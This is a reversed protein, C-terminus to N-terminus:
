RASVSVGVTKHLSHGQRQFAQGGQKNPRCATDTCVPEPASSEQEHQQVGIYRGKMQEAPSKLAASLM